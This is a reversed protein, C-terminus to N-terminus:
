PNVAKIKGTMGAELHGATACIVNYDGAEPLTFKFLGSAQPDLAFEVLIEERQKEPNFPTVVKAGKKLITFDHRIGGKNSLNLTIEQNAFVTAASPSFVFESMEVQLASVPQSNEPQAACATFVLSLLVVAIWVFGLKKLM